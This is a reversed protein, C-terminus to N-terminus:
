VRVQMRSLLMDLMMDAPDIVRLETLKEIEEKLYPFHTCGLVVAESGCAEMYRILHDIGCERVIDAPAKGEEIARVISMNGSGIMYIDPNAEMLAKEIGHASINNAAIVGIRAHGRGLKRYVQLPTVINIGKEEAYSDFDFAGSLSNCYVFFDRTGLATERSFIEDIRARKEADSYYQFKVQEDCTEAVPCYATEIPYESVDDMAAPLGMHQREKLEERMQGLRGEIYDIGMQTDILTGAVVAVRVASSERSNTAANAEINLEITNTAKNTERDTGM